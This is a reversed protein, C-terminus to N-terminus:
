LTKQRRLVRLSAAGFPLLLLAGSILTTPEPVATLSVNGLAAGYPTSGAYSSEDQFQLLESGGAVTFYATQTLWKMDSHSNAGTLYDFVQPTGGGLSVALQKLIPPGDPNGSEAFTLKYTGAALTISQSITGSVDGAMDVSRTTGLPAQWYTGILDVSGGSVTWGGMTTPAFYTTYVGPNPAAEFNGDVVLNASAAIPLCLVSATALLSEWSKAKM